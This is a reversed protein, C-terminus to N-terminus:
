LLRRLADALQDIHDRTHDAFIGCRIVGRPGAGIYHSHFVYIGEAMLQQQLAAMSKGPETAFTAVPAISDGVALGIGRLVRKMYSVNERLRRLLEPHERVYRLSLACMQAAAPLGASAGRGAPAVRLKEIENESAVIIGGVVGFAKCTSGGALVSSAPMRHHECAGRGTEGIVGFSHSEDIVIRGGYPMTVQAILDLPAIEGFVSYMGDTVVLPRQGPQLLQKLQAQLDGADLHRFSHAPLGSAAIAEKTSHHAREDFFIADFGDRLAALAVLGFLYGGGLYMAAEAQFFAAAEAEVHRHARTAIGYHRSLQYGSGSAKLTAAGAELLDPRASLGLYSSGAFNIYPRGDIVIQAGVPSEITKLRTLGM